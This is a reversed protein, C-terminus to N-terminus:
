QTVDVPVGDNRDAFSFLVELDTGDTLFQVSGDCVAVHAGGPHASQIPRNCGLNGLSGVASLADKENIPHRVSTLNFMRFSSDSGPAPAGLSSPGMNFGHNGDSRADRQVGNELLWDSQEALMITNSSGDTMDGFGINDILANQPLLVGGLSPISNNSGNWATDHESSGAIGTYCAMMGTVGMPVGRWSGPNSQDEYLVPFEPLSTSPCLLFPMLVDALATQNPNTSGQFNGRTWGGAQDVYQDALNNQEVFPLLSIWFSNGFTAGGEVIFSGQPLEQRASEFNHIALASQRLNNSCASRRAAERVQQVAPLLMGILIGIIAIVVLLEVLTFGSTRLTKKM